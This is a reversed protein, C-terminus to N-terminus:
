VPKWQFISWKGWQPEKKIALENWFTVYFLCIVGFKVSHQWDGPSYGRASRICNRRNQGPVLKWQQFDAGLLRKNTQKCRGSALGSPGSTYFYRVNLLFGEPRQALLHAFFSLYTRSFLLQPDSNAMLCSRVCNTKKKKEPKGCVSPVVAFYAPCLIEQAIRVM